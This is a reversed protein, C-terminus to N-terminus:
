KHKGDPHNVRELTKLAAESEWKLSSLLDLEQREKPTYRATFAEADKIKFDLYDNTEAPSYQYPNIGHAFVKGDWLYRYVDDEQIQNSPLIVARFVLGLVVICWLNSASDPKQLVTKSALAYFVFLVAYIALYALIPRDTYGEGSNFRRSLATLALYLPLSAIGLAILHRHSRWSFNKLPFM